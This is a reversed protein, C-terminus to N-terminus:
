RDQYTLIGVKCTLVLVVPCLVQSERLTKDKKVFNDAIQWDRQIGMIIEKDTDADIDMM